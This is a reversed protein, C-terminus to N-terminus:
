VALCCKKYKKGSGCPCPNNRGVHRLPNRRPEYANAPWSPRTDDIGTLDSIVLGDLAADDFLAVDEPGRLLPAPFAITALVDEIYGYSEHKFRRDDDPAADAAEAVGQRFLRMESM